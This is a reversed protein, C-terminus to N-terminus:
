CQGTEEEDGIRICLNNLNLADTYNAETAFALVLRIGLGDEGDKPIYHVPDFAGCDDRFRLVLDTEKQLLELIRMAEENVNLVAHLEAAGEGVPVAVFEGDLEVKEFVYRSKM